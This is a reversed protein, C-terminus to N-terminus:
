EDLVYAQHVKSFTAVERVVERVNKRWWTEADQGDVPHTPEIEELATQKGLQGDRRLRDLGAQAARRRDELRGDDDWSASVDDVADDFPALSPVAGQDRALADEDVDGRGKITGGTDASEVLEALGVRIVRRYAESVSLDDEAAYDKVEGNLAYSIDIDPRM